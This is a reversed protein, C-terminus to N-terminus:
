SNQQPPGRKQRARHFSIRYGAEVQGIVAPQTDLRTSAQRAGSHSWAASEVSATSRPLCPCVARVTPQNSAAKTAAQGMGAMEMCHHGGNRRCCAPLRSLQAQAEFISSFLPLGLVLILAISLLRRV